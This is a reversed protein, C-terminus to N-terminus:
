SKLSNLLELNKKVIEDTNMANWATNVAFNMQRYDQKELWEIDEKSNLGFMLKAQDTIKEDNAFDTMISKYKIVEKMSFNVATLVKIKGDEDKYNIIIPDKELQKYDIEYRPM